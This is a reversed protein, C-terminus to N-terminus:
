LEFHRLDTLGLLLNRPLLIMDMESRNHLVYIIHSSKNPSQTPM